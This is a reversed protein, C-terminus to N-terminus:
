KNLGVDCLSGRGEPLACDEEIHKGLDPGGLMM